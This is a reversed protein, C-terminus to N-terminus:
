FFHAGLGAASCFGLLPVQYVTTDPLFLFRDNTARVSAGAEVNLFLPQLFSWEGRTLAGTSLWLRTKTQPAVINSGAVELTGGEMRACASLRLSHFKRAVPCVDLRGVTWTFAAAGAPGSITGSLARDIALRLSPSFLGGGKSQWGVYASVGVLAVPSVGVDLAADLGGFLVGHSSRTTLTRPRSEETSGQAATRNPDVSPTVSLSASPPPLTAQLPPAGGDLPSLPAAPPPSGRPDIALSVVLALADAVEECTEALVMRTGEPRSAAGVFMRGSAPHGATVQVDFSRVESTGGDSPALQASTTRARVRGLFSARDPCGESSRYELRIAQEDTQAIAAWPIGSLVVAALLTRFRRSARGAFRHM